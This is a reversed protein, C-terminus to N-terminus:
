TLGQQGKVVSSVDRGVLVSASFFSTLFSPEYGVGYRRGSDSVAIWIHKEHYTM